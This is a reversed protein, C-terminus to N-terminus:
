KALGLLSYPNPEDDKKVPVDLRQRSPPTLGLEKAFDHCAKRAKDRASVAPRRQEYGSDTEFSIGNDAIDAELAQWEAWSTVYGTLVARDM